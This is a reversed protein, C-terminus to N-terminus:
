GAFIRLLDLIGVQSLVGRLLLAEVGSIAGADQGEALGQEIGSRLAIEIEAQTKGSSSILADLESQSALAAFVDFTPAGLQCAADVVGILAVAALADGRSSTEPWAFPSCPDDDGRVIALIRDVPAVRAAAALVTGETGSLAGAGAAENISQEMATRVAQEVAAQSKGSRTALGQLGRPDALASVAELPAVNLACAAGLGTKVGIEAAVRQLDGVSKWPLKACAGSSGKVAALLQDPPVIELLTRLALATTPTLRGAAEEDAATKTIAGLVADQLAKPTVALTQAADKIGNGRALALVLDERSVKLTCAAANLSTILITSAEVEAASGTSAGATATCSATAAAATAPAARLREAGGLAVFAGVLVFAAVVAVGIFAIDTRRM